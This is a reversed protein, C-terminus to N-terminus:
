SLSYGLAKYTRLRAKFQSHALKAGRDTFDHVIGIQKSAHPRMVRGARQELKGASRGGSALILVAARPVDLGEDALSTAVMVRLAGTRFDDIAQTRKKKSLKSHVVVAGPIKEALLEGHEVTGVLILTAADNSKATMVIVHNRAFNTRVAEATFQWLCRRNHEDASVAPYRKVRRLTEAAALSEINADFCGPEDVDHVIVKGRTLNGGALVEERPVTHFNEKGFFLTLETDRERDGSWPTASFGWVIGDFFMVTAWWTKAPLHHCEDVVVLDAGTVDPKGAVCQVDHQVGAAWEMRSLAARAQECQERTNALWHLRGFPPLKKAAAAAAMITKGSGAPAIIFGRRRPLLFGVSRSQYPRLM